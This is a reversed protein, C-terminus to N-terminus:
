FPSLLKSLSFRSHYIPPLKCLTTLKNIYLMFSFSSSDSDITVSLLMIYKASPSPDSLPKSILSSLPSKHCISPSTPMQFNGSLNPSSNHNKHSKQVFDLLPLSNALLPYLKGFDSQTSIFSFPCIIPHHHKCKSHSSNFSGRLLYVYLLQLFALVTQAISDLKHKAVIQTSKHRKDLHTRLPNLCGDHTSTLAMFFSFLIEYHSSLASRM